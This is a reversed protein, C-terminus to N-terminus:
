KRIQPAYHIGYSDGLIVSTALSGCVTMACAEVKKDEEKKRVSTRRISLRESAEHGERTVTHKQPSVFMVNHLRHIQNPLNKLQM